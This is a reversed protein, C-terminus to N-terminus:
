TSQGQHYATAKGRSTSRETIDVRWTQHLAAVVQHAPVVLVREQHLHETTSPVSTILVPSCRQQAQSVGSAKTACPKTTLEVDNTRLWQIRTSWSSINM